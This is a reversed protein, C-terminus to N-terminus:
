KDKLAALFKTTFDVILNGVDEWNLVECPHEDLCDNANKLCDWLTVRFAEVAKDISIHTSYKARMEAEALEVAHIVGDELWEGDVVGYEGEIWQKAERSEM